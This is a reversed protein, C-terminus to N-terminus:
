QGSFGGALQFDISLLRPQEVHLHSPPSPCKSCFLPLAPSLLQLAHLELHM